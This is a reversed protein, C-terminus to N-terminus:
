NTLDPLSTTFILNGSPTFTEISYSDNKELIEQLKDKELKKPVGLKLDNYTAPLHRMSLGVIQNIIEDPLAEQLEAKEDDDIDIDDFFNDFLKKFLKEDLTMIIHYEKDGYLSLTAIHGRMDTYQIKKVGLVDLAMNDVLFSKSEKVIIDTITKISNKM